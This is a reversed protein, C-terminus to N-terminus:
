KAYYDVIGKYIAQAYIEVYKDNVLKQRDETNSIFGLEVLVSPIIMNKIVYFPGEKVGRNTMNANTVIESNIYKALKQDEEYQDGTSVNYYTETGKASSSTASNVHVSVYIEGFNNKTFAVRQELTPYTDGTRTMYVKAGAAELKQRM